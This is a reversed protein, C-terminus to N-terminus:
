VAATPKLKFIDIFDIIDSSIALFYELSSLPWVEDFLQLFLRHSPIQLRPLWLFRQLSPANPLGM